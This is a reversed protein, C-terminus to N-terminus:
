DTLGCVTCAYSGSEPDRVFDSEDCGACRIDKNALAVAQSISDGPVLLELSDDHIIRKWIRLNRKHKDAIAIRLASDPDNAEIEIEFRDHV